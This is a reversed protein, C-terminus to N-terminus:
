TEQVGLVSVGALVGLDRVTLLEHFTAHNPRPGVSILEVDNPTLHPLRAAKVGFIQDAPVQVVHRRHVVARRPHTM